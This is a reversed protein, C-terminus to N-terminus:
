CMHLSYHSQFWVAPTNLGRGKREVIDGFTAGAIEGKRSHAIVEKKEAPITLSDFPVASWDINGLIQCYLNEQM